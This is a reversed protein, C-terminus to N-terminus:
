TPPWSASLLKWLSSSLGPCRCPVGCPDPLLGQPWAHAQAPSPPPLRAGWAVSSLTKMKQAVTAGPSWASQLCSGVLPGEVPVKQPGRM